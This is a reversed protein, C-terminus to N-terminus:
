APGEFYVQVPVRGDAEPVGVAIDRILRGGPRHNRNAETICELLAGPRNDLLCLTVDVVRPRLRASRLAELAADQKDHDVAFGFEGGQEVNSGGVAVINIGADKLIQLVAELNPPSSAPVDLRIQQHM